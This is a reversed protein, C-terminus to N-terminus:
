TYKGCLSEQLNPVEIGETRDRKHATTTYLMNYAIPTVRAAICIPNVSLSCYVGNPHSVIGSNGDPIIRINNKIKDVIKIIILKSV